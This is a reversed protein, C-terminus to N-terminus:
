LSLIPRRGTARDGFECKGQAHGFGDTYSLGGIRESTKAIVLAGEGERRSKRAPAAAGACCGREADGGGTRALFGSRVGQPDDVRVDM